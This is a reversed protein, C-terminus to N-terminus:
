GKKIVYNSCTMFVSNIPPTVIYNSCTPESLKMRGTDDFWM